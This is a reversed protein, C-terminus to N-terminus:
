SQNLKVNLTKRQKPNVYNNCILKTCFYLINTSILRTTNSLITDIKPGLKNKTRAKSTRKEKNRDVMGSERIKTISFCRLFRREMAGM